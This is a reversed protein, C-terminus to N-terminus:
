RLEASPASVALQAAIRDALQGLLESFREPVESASTVPACELMVLDSGVGTVAGDDGTLHWSAVFQSGHAEAVFPLIVVNLNLADNSLGRPALMVKGPPLRAILDASLTERALQHLPAAWHDLDHVDLGGRLLPTTIETRDTAAPMQVGAVRLAPGTYPSAGQAPPLVSLTHLRTPLSRCAGLAVVCFAACVSTSVWM